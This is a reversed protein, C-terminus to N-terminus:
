LRNEEVVHEKLIYIRIEHKPQCNESTYRVRAGLATYSLGKKKASGILNVKNKTKLLRQLSM